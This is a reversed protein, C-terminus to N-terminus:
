QRSRRMSQRTTPHLAATPTGAVVASVNAYRRAEVEDRRREAEVASLRAQMRAQRYAFVVAVVLGVAAIAASIVDGTDM